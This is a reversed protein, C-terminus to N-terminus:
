IHPKKGIVIFLEKLGDMPFIQPVTGISINMMKIISIGDNTKVSEIDEDDYLFHFQSRSGQGRIISSFTLPTNDIVVVEKSFLKPRKSAADYINM